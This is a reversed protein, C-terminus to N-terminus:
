VRNEKVKDKGKGNEEGGMQKMKRGRGERIEEDRGEKKEKRECERQQLPV